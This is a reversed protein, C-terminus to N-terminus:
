RFGSPGTTIRGFRGGKADFSDVGRDEREDETKRQEQDRARSKGVSLFQPRHRVRDFVRRNRYVEIAAQARHEM